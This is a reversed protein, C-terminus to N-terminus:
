TGIGGFRRDRDTFIKLARVFVSEDFDPWNEEVFVLEAYASQWLLFNSLRMEGSTRLILDPDPLGSTSLHADLVAEDISDPDLQGSAAKAAIAKVASTIEYKAGYNFAIVLNLGTNGATKTEADEIVARLAPELSDRDGIIRVRVNQKALRELDSAVFRHLLGFLFRVEEPPRRWNESSFAFLTLCDVGYSICLEVARRVADVGAKHGETRGLGRAQAWRGNGDMIVGIHAPVKLNSREAVVAAIAPNHSM